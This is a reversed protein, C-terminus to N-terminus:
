MLSRIAGAILKPHIGKVVKVSGIRTALVFRNTTAEFKKDHAMHKLIANLSVKEIKEPLGAASILANIRQQSAKDLLKMRHSIEAAARMGLAVAEGHHYNRYQNAAEIAHGVTHGFNLITRTGKQEKEDQMIVQAKIMSCQSVLETLAKPELKLLKEIQTELFSFVHHDAIVGYKVAEALGNRVQRLTLTSLMAVDSYILRPQYFAGVLNKGVPLDIGVKGGIASDIQALLTTPVQIYPIGRKYTAALFGALDGVVGGGFAVIFIKRGVSYHAIEEVVKFACRASKSREGSLIEIFKVSIKAKALGLALRQGHYRRIIPNTIVVADQGLSLSTLKEGLSDLIQAGIHIQHNNEPLQIDITSM